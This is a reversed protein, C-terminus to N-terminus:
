KKVPEAKTKSDKIKETNPEKKIVEEKKKSLKETRKRENYKQHYEKIENKHSQYYARHYTAIKERNKEYNCPIVKVTFETNSFAETLIKNIEDQAQNEKKNTLNIRM